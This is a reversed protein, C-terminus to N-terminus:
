ERKEEDSIKSKNLTELWNEFDSKLKDIVSGKLSVVSLMNMTDQGNNSINMKTSCHVYTKSNDIYIDRIFSQQDMHLRAQIPMSTKGKFYFKGDKIESSISDRQKYNGEFFLYIKSNYKGSITGFVEFPKDQCFSVFPLLYFLLCLKFDKM